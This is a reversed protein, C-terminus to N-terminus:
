GVYCKLMIYWKVFLISMLNSRGLGPVHVQSFKFTKCKKKSTRSVSLLVYVVPVKLLSM